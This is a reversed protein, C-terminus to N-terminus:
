ADAAIDTLSDADWVLIPVGHERVKASFATKFAHVTAGYAYGNRWKDNPPWLAHRYLM